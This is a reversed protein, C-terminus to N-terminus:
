PILVYNGFSPDGYLDRTTIPLYKAISSMLDLFGPDFPM